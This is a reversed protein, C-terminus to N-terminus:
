TEMRSAERSTAPQGGYTLLGAGEIRPGPKRPRIELRNIAVRKAAM